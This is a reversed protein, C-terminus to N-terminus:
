TYVRGLRIGYREALCLHLRVIASQVSVTNKSDSITNLVQNQVCGRICDPGLIAKIRKGNEEFKILYLFSNM